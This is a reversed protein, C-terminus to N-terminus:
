RERAMCKRKADTLKTPITIWTKKVSVLSRLCSGRKKRGESVSKDLRKTVREDGMREVYGFWDLHKQDM